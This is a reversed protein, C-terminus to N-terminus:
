YTAKSLFLVYIDLTYDGFILGAEKPSGKSGTSIFYGCITYCDVKERVVMLVFIVYRGVM